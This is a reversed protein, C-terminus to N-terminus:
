LWFAAQPVTNESPVGPKLLTVGKRTPSYYLGDRNTSIHVYETWESLRHAFSDM